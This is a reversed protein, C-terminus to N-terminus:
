SWRAITPIQSKTCIFVVLKRSLTTALVIIACLRSIRHQRTSIYRISFLVQPVLNENATPSPLIPVRLRAKYRVCRRAEIVCVEVLLTVLFHFCRETILRLLIGFKHKFSCVLRLSLYIIVLKEFLYYLM